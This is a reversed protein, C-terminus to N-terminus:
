MEFLNINGKYENNGNTVNGKKDEFYKRFYEIGLPTVKLQINTHGNFYNIDEKQYFIGNGSRTKYKDYTVIKHVKPSRKVYGLKILTDIFENSKLNLEKACQKLSISREELFIDKIEKEFM